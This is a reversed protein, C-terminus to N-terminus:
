RDSPISAVTPAAPPVHRWALVLWGSDASVQTALLSGGNKVNEPLKLDEVEIKAKFVKGFKKELIKRLLQERAGLKDKGPVFGPPFIQLDGVRELIFGKKTLVIRYTSTTNMGDFVRDGSMFEEGRLTMVINGKDFRFEFPKEKPFTISFSKDDPDITKLEEKQVPKLLLNFEKDLEEGSFKKGAFAPQTFNNLLSEEIRVAIDPWGHIEPVATFNQTKGLPDFLLARIGLQHQSTLIRVKQPFVGRKELPQRLEECYRRNAEAIQQSAL